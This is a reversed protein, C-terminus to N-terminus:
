YESISDMLKWTSNVDKIAYASLFCNNDSKWQCKNLLRQTIGEERSAKFGLPLPWIRAMSASLNLFYNSPHIALFFSESTFSHSTMVVWRDSSMDWLSSRCSNQCSHSINYQNTSPDFFHIAKVSYSQSCIYEIEVLRCTHRDCHAESEGQVLINCDLSSM